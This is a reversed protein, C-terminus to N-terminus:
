NGCVSSPRVNKFRRNMLRFKLNTSAAADLPFSPHLSSGGTTSPARNVRKVDLLKQRMLLFWLQDNGASPPVVSRLGTATLPWGRRSTPSLRRGRSQIRGAWWCLKTLSWCLQFACLFVPVSQFQSTKRTATSSNPGSFNCVFHKNKKNKFGRRRM